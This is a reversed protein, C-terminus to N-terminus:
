LIEEVTMKRAKDVQARIKKRADRELQEFAKNGFRKVKDKGIRKAYDLAYDRAVAKTIVSKPM